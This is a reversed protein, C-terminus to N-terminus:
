LLQAYLLLSEWPNGYRYKDQTGYLITRPTAASGAQLEVAAEETLYPYADARDLETKKLTVTQIAKGRDDTLKLRFEDVLELIDITTDGTMTANLTASTDKLDSVSSQFTILGSSLSATYVTLSGFLENHLVPLTGAAAADPRPHYDGTM